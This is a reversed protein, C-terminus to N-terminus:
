KKRRVNQATNAAKKQQVNKQTTNTAAKKQHVHHEQIKSAAKSVPVEAKVNAGTQRHLKAAKPKSDSAPVKRRRQKVKKKKM